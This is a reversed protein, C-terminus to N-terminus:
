RFKRKLILYKAIRKHMDELNYSTSDLHHERIMSEKKFGMLTWLLWRENKIPLQIFVQEISSFAIWKLLEDFEKYTLHELSSIAFFLDPDTKRYDDVDTYEPIIDFGIYKVEKPLFDKLRQQGCGFDLAIGKKKIWSCLIKKGKGFYYHSIIPLRRYWLDNTEYEGFQNRTMKKM